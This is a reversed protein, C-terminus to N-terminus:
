YLSYYLRREEPNDNIYTKIFDEVATSVSLDRKFYMRLVDLSYIFGNKERERMIFQVIQRYMFSDISEKRLFLLMDILENIKNYNWERILAIKDKLSLSNILDGLQSYDGKIAMDRLRESILSDTISVRFIIKDLEDILYNGPDVLFLRGNYITNSINIDRLIVLNSSLVELDQSLINLEEFLIDISDEDISREGSIYLMDYGFLEGLENWITGTPLLIRQTLISKLKNLDRLSLHTLKYDKKYIKIVLDMYKYVIFESGQDSLFVLKSMNLPCGNENFLQEM